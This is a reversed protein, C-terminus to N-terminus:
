CRPKPLPEIEDLTAKIVYDGYDLEMDESVGNALLRMGLEYDPTEASAASGPPFFALRIRWSPHQLLPSKAAAPGPANDDDSKAAPAGPKLEPGIVATIETAKEVDSGDFVKRALFATKAKAEDLLALTHATPFIVGPDLEIKADQPRTFEAVGGKGPGDLHAEGRLEEEPTGDRTRREDFRYRLGDKAEWTVLSSSLDGGGEQAYLLRLRFRQEVTWGDCTEGWEYYMAGTAGLVGSGGRTSGLSLRYLARHPDINAAAAAPSAAPVVVALALVGPFVRTVWAQM